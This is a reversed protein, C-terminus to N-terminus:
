KSARKAASIADAANTYRHQNWEYVARLVVSIEYRDLEACVSDPEARAHSAYPGAFDKLKLEIEDDTLINAVPQPQEV